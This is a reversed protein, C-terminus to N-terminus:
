VGKFSYLNFNIVTNKKTMKFTKFSIPFLVYIKQMISLVTNIGVIGMVTLTINVKNVGPVKSSRLIYPSFGMLKGVAGATNNLKINVKIGKNKLYKVFSLLTFMFTSIKQKKLAVKSNKIKEMGSYEFKYHNIRVVLFGNSKEMTKLNAILPSSLKLYLFVSVILLLLAIIIKVTILKEFSM